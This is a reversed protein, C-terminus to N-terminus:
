IQDLYLSLKAEIKGLSISYIYMRVTSKALLRSM